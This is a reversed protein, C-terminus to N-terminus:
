PVKAPRMRMAACRISVSALFPSFIIEWGKGPDRDHARPRVAWQERCDEGQERMLKAANRLVPPIGKPLDPDDLDTSEFRPTIM